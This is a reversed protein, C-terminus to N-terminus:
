ANGDITYVIRGYAAQDAPLCHLHLTALGYRGRVLCVSGREDFGLSGILEDVAEGIPVLTGGTDALWGDRHLENMKQRLNM